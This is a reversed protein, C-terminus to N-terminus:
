GEQKVMLLESFDYCTFISKYHIIIITCNYIVRLFHSLLSNASVMNVESVMDISAVDITMGVSVPAGECTCLLVFLYICVCIFSSQM